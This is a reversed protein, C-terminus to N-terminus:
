GLRYIRHATDHFLASKEDTSYSATLRKFSNWLVNYSCTVMDPPFNSEFMCREVGFHEITHEYYRRTKQMLEESTPPRDKLHWGFGNMELNLGGLKAVVNPCTALEAISEQWHPFIEDQKGAYPGQGLPGGFHNLIITTNPFARALDTIQNLQTHYCWAEFSLGLPALCAFGKRFDSDLSLVKSSCNRGRHIDPSDDYNLQHRIGRFRGGGASIHSELVSQIANGIRLDVSGVIGAAVRTKGYLGSASMAAIGNAFETEGIPKMEEPGSARYMAGCEVFVTSVVNHGCNVDTLLEEFLYRHAVCVERFEWLHHHPDCIRLEPDITDEKSRELWGKNTPKSMM